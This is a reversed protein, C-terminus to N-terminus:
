AVAEEQAEEQSVTILARGEDGALELLQDLVSQPVVSAFPIDRFRLPVTEGQRIARRIKGPTRQVTSMDM